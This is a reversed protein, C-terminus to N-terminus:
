APSYSRERRDRGLREGSRLSLLRLRTYEELFALTRNSQASDCAYDPQSSSSGELVDRPHPRYQYVAARVIRPFPERVVASHGQGGAPQGNEVKRWGTVHRHGVRIARHRDCVIALYIVIDLQALLQFVPAM